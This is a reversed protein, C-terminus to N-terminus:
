FAFESSNVFELFSIEHWCNLVWYMAIYKKIRVNNHVFSYIRELDWNINVSITVIWLLAFILFLFFNAWVWNWLVVVLDGWNTYEGFNISKLKAVAINYKKWSHNLHQLANHSDCKRQPLNESMYHM